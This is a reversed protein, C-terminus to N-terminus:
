FGIGVGVGGWTRGGSGVGLNISPSVRPGGSVSGQEPEWLQLRESVVVPYRYPSNGVKGDTFGKLRGRVEILRDPSYEHPELFGQKDVIFRGQPRQDAQPRGSGDLPLALVEVLTRDRLNRVKVIQGGWHVESHTQVSSSGPGQAAVEAPTPGSAVSRTQNACGALMLTTVGLIAIIRKM